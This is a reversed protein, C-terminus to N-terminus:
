FPCLELWFAGIQFNTGGFNMIKRPADNPIPGPAGLCTVHPFVIFVSPFLSFSFMVFFLLLCTLRDVVSYFVTPFWLCVFFCIFMVLIM